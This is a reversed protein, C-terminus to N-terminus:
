GRGSEGSVGLEELGADRDIFGCIIENALLSTEPHVGTAAHYSKEMMSPVKCNTSLGHISLNRESWGVEKLWKNLDARVWGLLFPVSFFSVNAGSGTTIVKEGTLKPEIRAWFNRGLAVRGCAKEAAFDAIMSVFKKSCTNCPYNSSSPSTLAAKVDGSFDFGLMTFKAGIRECMHRCNDKVFDPIFGNDVLVATVNLGLDLTLYGLVASSDKGGSLAVVIDREAGEKSAEGLCRKLEDALTDRADVRANEYAHCMSCRGDSYLYIGPMGTEYVCTRCRHHRRDDFQIGLNEATKRLCAEHVAKAYADYDVGQVSVGTEYHTFDRSPIEDLCVRAEIPPVLSSNADTVNPKM